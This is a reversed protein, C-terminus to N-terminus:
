LWRSMWVSDDEDFGCRAYFRRAAANAAETELFLRRIGEARCAEVIAALALRGTGRGRERVFVEDVLGERGGSEISYGWTVVAYGADEGILWVVGHRDDDLLAPLAGRVHAEDFRHGDVEYFERVLQVLQDLDAPGARRLM